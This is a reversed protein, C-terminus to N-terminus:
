ASVVALISSLAREPDFTWGDEDTFNEYPVTYCMSSRLNLLYTEWPPLSMEGLRANLFELSLVLEEVPIALEARYSGDRSGAEYWAFPFNNFLLRVKGLQSRTLQSFGFSAGAVKTQDGGRVPIWRVRHYSIVPLVHKRFHWRLTVANMKLKGSIDVLSRQSSAQLEKILLLDSRDIAPKLRPQDVVIPSPPAEPRKGVEAWDISWRGSDFDYFGCKLEPNRVWEVRKFEADRLIGESVLDRMFSHFQEEVLVPVAFLAVHTPELLTGTRYTLFAVEALRDLISNAHPLADPAFSITASYRQLGLDGLNFVTEVRLDLEPFRKKLMYRITEKPMGTMRSLAAVNKIGIRDVAQILDAIRSSM